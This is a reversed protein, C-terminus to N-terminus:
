YDKKIKEAAFISDAQQRTVYRSTDIGPSYWFSIFDSSYRRKYRTDISLSRAKGNISKLKYEDNEYLIACSSDVAIEKTVHGITDKAKWDVSHRFEYDVQWSM